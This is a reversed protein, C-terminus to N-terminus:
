PKPTFENILVTFKSIFIKITNIHQMRHNLRCLTVQLLVAEVSSQNIICTKNQWEKGEKLDNSSMETIITDKAWTLM